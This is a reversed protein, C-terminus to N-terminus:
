KAMCYVTGGTIEIIVEKLADSDGFNVVMGSTLPIATSPSTGFIGTGKITATCGTSLLISYLSYGYKTPTLVVPSDISTWAITLLQKNNVPM